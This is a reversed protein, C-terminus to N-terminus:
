GAGGRVGKALTSVSGLVKAVLGPTARGDGDLNAKLQEVLASGVVAADAVAAVEAAQEPTRIGFGVAIPLDTHRKM